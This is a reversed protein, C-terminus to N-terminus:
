HKIQSASFHLESHSRIDFGEPHDAIEFEIKMIIPGLSPQSNQGLAMLVLDNINRNLLDEFKETFDELFSQELETIIKDSINM